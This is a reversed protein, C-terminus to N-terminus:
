LSTSFVVHAHFDMLIVASIVWTGSPLCGPSTIGPTALFLSMCLWRVGRNTNREGPLERCSGGATV